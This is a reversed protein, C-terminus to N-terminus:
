PIDQTPNHPHPFSLLKLLSQYTYEEYDNGFTSSVGILDCRPSNLIGLLSWGDDVDVVKQATHWTKYM